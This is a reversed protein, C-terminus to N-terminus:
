LTSIEFVTAIESLPGRPAEITLAEATQSWRVTENGGLLAVGAIKANLLKADTGLSKIHVAIKPAGMIFAYLVGGKTTFRVDEATFPKGKGENFGQGQLQVVDAMQPGEGLVKWPRTGHIAEQNVQM